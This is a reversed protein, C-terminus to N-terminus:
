KGLLGWQIVGWINQLLFVSSLLMPALQRTRRWHVVWVLNAVFFICFSIWSKQDILIFNGAFTLIAALWDPTLYRRM